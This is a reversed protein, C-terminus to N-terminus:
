LSAHHYLILNNHHIWVQVTVLCSVIAGSELAWVPQQLMLLKSQRLHEHRFADSISLNVTTSIAHSSHLAQWLQTFGVNVCLSYMPVQFFSCESTDPLIITNVIDQLVNGGQFLYTTKKKKQHNICLKCWNGLLFYTFLYFDGEAMIGM